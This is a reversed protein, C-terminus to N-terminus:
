LQLTSLGNFRKKPVTVLPTLVSGEGVGGQFCDPRMADLAIEPPTARRNCVGEGVGGQFLHSIVTFCRIANTQASLTQSIVPATGAVAVYM